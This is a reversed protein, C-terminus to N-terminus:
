YGYGGGGSSGDSSSEDSSSGEAPQGDATLSYWEAGFEDLGNGNTDGPAKDGSFYYLPHDAYAVQTTGDDRKFTTLQSADVGDGAAPAGKTTYPPWDKACEGSCYSEDGEDDKEFLYLTRGDGAVLIQGLDGGSGLAVATGSGSAAASPAATSTSSSDNSGCAVLALSGALCAVALGIRFSSAPAPM